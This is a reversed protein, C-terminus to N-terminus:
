QAAAVGSACVLVVAALLTPAKFQMPIEPAAIQPGAVLYVLRVALGANKRDFVTSKPPLGLLGWCNRSM